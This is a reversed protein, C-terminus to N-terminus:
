KGSRKRWCVLCYIFGRHWVGDGKWVWEHCTSCSGNHYNYNRMMHYLM